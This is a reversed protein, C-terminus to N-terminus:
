GFDSNIAVEHIAVSVWPDNELVAIDEIFILVLSKKELVLDDVVNPLRYLHIGLILVNLKLSDFIELCPKFRLFDNCSRKLSRKLFWSTANFLM